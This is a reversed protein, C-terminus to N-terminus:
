KEEDGGGSEGKPSGDPKGPCGCYDEPSLLGGGGVETGLQM